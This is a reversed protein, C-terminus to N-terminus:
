LLFLSLFSDLRFPLPLTRFGSVSLLILVLSSGVFSGSSDVPPFSSPALLFYFPSMGVPSGTALPFRLESRTM